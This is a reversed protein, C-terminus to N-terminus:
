RRAVNWTKDAGTPPLGMEARWEDYARLLDTALSTGVQAYGIRTLHTRDGQARPEAEEAWAAISGPGGM